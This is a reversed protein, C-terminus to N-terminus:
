RRGIKWVGDYLEEAALVFALALDYSAFRVNVEALERTECLVGRWNTTLMQTYGLDPSRYIVWPGSRHPEFPPKGYTRKSKPGRPKGPVSKNM